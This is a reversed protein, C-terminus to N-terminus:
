RASKGGTAKCKSRKPKDYWVVFLFSKTMDPVLRTGTARVGIGCIVGRLM